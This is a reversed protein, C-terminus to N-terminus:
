MRFESRYWVGPFGRIILLSFTHSCCLIFTTKEIMTKIMTNYLVANIIANIEVFSRLFERKVLNSECM